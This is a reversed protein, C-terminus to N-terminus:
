GWMLNQGRLGPFFIDRHVIIVPIMNCWNLTMYFIIANNGKFFRFYTNISNTSYYQIQYKIDNELM